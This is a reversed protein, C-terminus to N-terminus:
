SVRGSGTHLDIPTVQKLRPPNIHRFSFSVLRTQQWSHKDEMSNILDIDANNLTDSVINNDGFTQEMNKGTQVKM